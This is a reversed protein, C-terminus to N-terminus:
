SYWYLCSDYLVYYIPLPILSYDAQSLLTVFVYIFVTVMCFLTGAEYVKNHLSLLLCVFISASKQILVLALPISLPTDNFGCSM